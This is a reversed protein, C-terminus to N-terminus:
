QLSPLSKDFFAKVFKLTVLFPSCILIFFFFLFFCILVKFEFSYHHKTLSYSDEEFISLSDFAFFVLLIHVSVHGKPLHKTNNSKTVIIATNWNSRETQLLSIPPFENNWWMSINVMNQQHIHTDVLM